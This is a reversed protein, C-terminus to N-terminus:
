SGGIDSINSVGSGETFRWEYAFRLVDYDSKLFEPFPEFPAASRLIDMAAQDLNREGSSHRVIVDKLDGNANIVVELTPHGISPGRRRVNPFNLTGVREVKVKWSSLYAAIRSERTNASIILERSRSDSILTEPAPENVIQLTSSSSSPASQQRQPIPQESGEPDRRVSHLSISATVTLPNKQSIQRGQRIQELAGDQDPGFKSVDQSVNTATKLQNTQTTNGAGRLNQQALLDTKEPTPRDEYHQAVLVVDLNTATVSNNADPDGSFTVGLIVIAHFLGALFLTSSLRDDAAAAAWPIPPEKVATKGSAMTMVTQM